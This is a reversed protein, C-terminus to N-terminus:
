YEGNSVVSVDSQPQNNIGDEDEEEDIDEENKHGCLLPCCDGGNEYLPVQGAPCLLPPCSLKTCNM